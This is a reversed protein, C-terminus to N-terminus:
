RRRYAGTISTLNLIDRVGKCNQNGCIHFAGPHAFVEHMNSGMDWLADGRIRLKNEISGPEANALRIISEDDPMLTIEM